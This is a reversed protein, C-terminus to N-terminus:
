YVAQVMAVFCARCQAQESPAAVDECVMPIVAYVEAESFGEAKYSEMIQLTMQREEDTGPCALRVQDTVQAGCGALFMTISLVFRKM